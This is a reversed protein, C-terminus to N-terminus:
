WCPSTKNSSSLSSREDFPPQIQEYTMNQNVIDRRRREEEDKSFLCVCRYKYLDIEKIAGSKLACPLKIWFNVASPLTITSGPKKFDEEL